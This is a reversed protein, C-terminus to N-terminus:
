KRGPQGSVRAQEFTHLCGASCFWHDVGEHVTHHKADDVFVTMGCIPDIAEKPPVSAAGRLQGAARRAVLDALVAVAIEANDIPGLDLGAPALVRALQTDEV